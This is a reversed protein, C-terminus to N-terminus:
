GGGEGGLIRVRDLAKVNACASRGEGPPILLRYPGGKERPFPGDGLSHVLVAEGAEGVAVPETSMGDSASLVFREGDEAVLELVERLYVGRGERGPILAAVDPVQGPLAALAYRTLEVERGGAHRLRIVPQDDEPPAWLMRDVERVLAEARAAEGRLILDLRSAARYATPASHVRGGARELRYWGIDTHFIAKAREVEPSSLLRKLADIDFVVGPAWVRSASAWGETSPTDGARPARLVRLGGPKPSYRLDLAEIPLQGHAIEWTGLPPPWSEAALARFAALAEPSALDVRSAILLAAGEAQELLLPPPPQELLRSPDIVVAVPALELRPALPSRALTDVIDAPRALGTPEIFIRDPAVEDLLRRLAPVMGEPATCCVCGGPIEVLGAAGGGLSAADLSAEGFDNVLVACREGSAALLARLLTTKGAGLFGAIVHVPTPKSM